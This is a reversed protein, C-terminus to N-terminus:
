IEIIKLNKTSRIHNWVLKNMIPYYNKEAIVCELLEEVGMYTDAESAYGFGVYKGDQILIISKEGSERGEDILILDQAFLNEVDSAMEIVKPNYDKTSKVTCYGMCNCIINEKALATRDQCLDYEPILQHLDNKAIKLKAYEKIPTRNIKNKAANRKIGLELYGAENEEYYMFYPFNSKKQAKNIEPTLRKIERSELLLAVLESGTLEYSITAVRNYLAASKKTTSRFHQFARAKIDIAKGVYIISGESDAFYYVGCAEPLSHLDNLSVGKPLQTEKIGLNILDVIDTDSSQSAMIQELVYVTALTDDLARHRHNVDIDFHRILNGLSYSKLGPFTARTLKVTCLQRRTYTYGLEKFAEKIFTYDFRVNHAVFIAGETMEVIKKAVEYFKPADQVMSNTIGTIRTIEPPISREPYILTDYQDIKNKGDHLVIAIEIIKDRKPLGGTTEIDIIAYTRKM